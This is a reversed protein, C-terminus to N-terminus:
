RHSGPGRQRAEAPWGRRMAVLALMVLAMFALAGSGGTSACSWGLPSLEDGEGDGTGGDGTGADVGGDSTGGDSGGDSTGGDSGADSMAPPDFPVSSQVVFLGAANTARVTVLYPTPDPLPFDTLDVTTQEGVFTFGEPGAQGWQKGVGWEYTLPSEDDKFGKWSAILRGNLRQVSVSGATPATDDVRMRLLIGDTGANATLDVGADSPFWGAASSYGGFVVQGGPGAAVCQVAEEPSTAGGVYSALVVETVASNVMAVFGDRPAGFTSDFASIALSSSTTWGGLYVNGYPDMASHGETRESGEISTNVRLVLSGLFGEGNLRLVIVDTGADPLPSLSSTNGVVAVGADGGPRALVSRVDDEGGDGLYFLWYVSGDSQLRAVFGESGGAYTTRVWTPAPNSILEAGAVGGVFVTDGQTSVSHAIDDRTSRFIRTWQVVADGQSAVNIQSVFAEYGGSRENSQINNPPFESALSSAAGDNRGTMGTVYALRQDPSLTIARAEDYLASGLYMFYDVTGNPELRALFGDTNMKRGYSTTTRPAEVGPAVQIVDSETRGVVFVVGTNTVTVGTASDDGDGGFVRAWRLTTGDGAYRAVFVDKRSTAQPLGADPAAPFSLADTWGTVYVDGDPGIAVAEIRDHVNVTTGGDRLPGGGVYTNWAITPTPDWTPLQASVPAPLLALPTFLAAVLAGRLFRQHVSM